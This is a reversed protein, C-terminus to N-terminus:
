LTYPTYLTCPVHLYVSYMSYPTSHIREYTINKKVIGYFVFFTSRTEYLNMTLQPVRRIELNNGSTIGGEEGRETKVGQEEGTKREEPEKQEKQEQQSGKGEM